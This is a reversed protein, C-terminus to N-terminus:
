RWGMGRPSRCSGSWRPWRASSISWSSPAPARRSRRRSPRPRSTSRGRRRHGRLGAHRRRQPDRGGHRFVHVATTIVEDGPKLDLARLPLLLADTGSACGIAHKTQSLRAVAAELQGVEAGMIFAQREIVSMLAPLVEDKIDRYQAVLDLLPVNMPRDRTPFFRLIRCGHFKAAGAPHTLRACAAGAGRIFPAARRAPPAVRRAADAARRVPVDVRGAPGASRGDARVGARRRAGGRRRRHLQVRRPHGRLRHDRQRRHLRGARVLTPRYESKRSVHSRPNTVNTFVCSPGCFM